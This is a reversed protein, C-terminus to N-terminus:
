AILLHNPFFILRGVYDRTNQKKNSQKNSDTKSPSHQLLKIVLSDIETYEENQSAFNM